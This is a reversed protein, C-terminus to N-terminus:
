FEKMEESHEQIMHLFESHERAKKVSFTQSQEDFLLFERTEECPIQLKDAFKKLIAATWTALLPM